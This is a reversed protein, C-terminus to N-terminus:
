ELVEHIMTDMKGSARVIRALCSRAAEPLDASHEEVLIDAFNRISRLPARLDHAISHSFGDLQTILDQLRSTREAVSAELREAHAQLERQAEVLKTEAVKRDTIDQSLGVLRVPRGERDFEVRGREFFWRTDGNLGVLRFESLYTGDASRLAAEM